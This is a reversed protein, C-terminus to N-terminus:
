LKAFRSNIQCVLLTSHSVVSQATHVCGSIGAFATRAPIAAYLVANKHECFLCSICCKNPACRNSMRLVFMNAWENMDVSSRSSKVRVFVEAYFSRCCSDVSLNKEFFLFQAALLGPTLPEDIM